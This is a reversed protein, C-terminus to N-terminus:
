HCHTEVITWCSIKICLNHHWNWTELRRRFIQMGSISLYGKLFLPKHLQIQLTLVVGAWSAFTYKIVSMCLNAKHAQQSVIIGSTARNAATYNVILYKAKKALSKGM